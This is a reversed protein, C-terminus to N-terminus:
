GVKMILMSRTTATLTPNIGALIRWRGEITQAGDVSVHGFTAVAQTQNASAFQHTRPSAPDLAGGEYVSLEITTNNKSASISGGFLVAYEGAAPTITMGGLLVATTSTTTTIASASVIANAIGGQAGDVWSPNAGPGGTQLVYGATSAALRLWNTGNFYLIDGQVGGPDVMMKKWVAATASPDSCIYIAGGTTVWM